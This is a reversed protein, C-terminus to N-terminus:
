AIQTVETYNPREGGPPGRPPIDGCHPPIGRRTGTGRRVAVSHYFYCQGKNLAFIPLHNFQAKEELHCRQGEIYLIIEESDLGKHHIAEYCPSLPLFYVSTITCISCKERMHM